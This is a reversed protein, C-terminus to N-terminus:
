IQSKHTLRPEGNALLKCLGHTIRKVGEDGGWRMARAPFSVSQLRTKTLDQQDSLHLERQVNLMVQFKNKPLCLM